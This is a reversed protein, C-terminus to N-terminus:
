EGIAALLALWSPTLPNHFFKLPRLAMFLM